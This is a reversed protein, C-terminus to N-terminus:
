RGTGARPLSAATSGPCVQREPQSPRFRVLAPRRNERRERDPTAQERACVACRRTRINQWSSSHQNHAEPLGVTASM